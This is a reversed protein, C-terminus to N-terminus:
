VGPTILVPGRWPRGSARSIREAIAYPNTVVASCLKLEEDQAGCEDKAARYARWGMHASLFPDM